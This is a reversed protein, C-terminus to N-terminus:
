DEKFDGPKWRYFVGPPSAVMLELGLLAKKEFDLLLSSHIAGSTPVSNRDFAARAEASNAFFEPRGHGLHDIWPEIVGFREPPDFFRPFDFTGDKLDILFRTENAPADVLYAHSGWAKSYFFQMTSCIGVRDINFVRALAFRGFAYIQSQELTLRRSGLFPEELEVERISLSPDFLDCTGFGHPTLVRKTTIPSSEM